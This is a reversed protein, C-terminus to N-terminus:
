IRDIRLWRPDGIWARALAAEAAAAEPGHGLARETMVLGYLAWGNAPAKVLAARFAERAEEYRGARYLAAGLSQAVPYYWYPPETYPVTAEIAMAERYLEAARAYRGQAYAFRATAVKDAIALLDPAPVGQDTMMSFDTNAAIDRLAEIETRFGAADRRQAHATARAYHRMAVVYPLRADAEPLSLIRDPEAFQAVAFWPAANIPQVWAMQAAIDTSVVESLRRAERIATAMDGAMQASTVIFHINHPYYGYRYLGDDGVRELYREDARAAEVNVRISDQYRGIRYYIHAPMHVLHGAAEPMAAALGDAAAEARNPDASNELLHIYLHAAQIHGPDRALVREILAVGQGIRGNPTEGGPQWYDWPTTDMAAEAAIIAVDDHDPYDEALALMADAFAADLPARDEPPSEAYRLALAEILRQELPTASAAAAQARALAALAKPNDDPNMPANINPGYSLAEGWACLACDPDLQQAMRFSRIAAAHNFGYMLLMGQDFYRRATENESTPVLGSPPVDDFLPMPATEGAGQMAAILLRARLADGGFLSGCSARAIRTPDLMALTEASYGPDANAMPISQTAGAMAALAAGTILKRM